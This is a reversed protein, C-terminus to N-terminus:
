SFFVKNFDYINKSLNTNNGWLLYASLAGPSFPDSWDENLAEHRKLYLYRKYIDKHDLYTSCLKSSFHDVKNNSFLARYKKNIRNSKVVNILM